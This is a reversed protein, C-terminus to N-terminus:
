LLLPQIILLERSLQSAINLRQWLQSEALARSRSRMKALVNLADGAINTGIRYLQRQQDASGLRSLRETGPLISRQWCQQGRAVIFFILGPWTIFLAKRM